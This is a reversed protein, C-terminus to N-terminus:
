TNRDTHIVYPARWLPLGQALDGGGLGKRVGLEDRLEVLYCLARPTGMSQKVFHKVNGLIRSLKNPQM